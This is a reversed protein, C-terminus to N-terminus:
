ANYPVAYGEDVMRQNIDVMHGNDDVGILVVLWRGYKGKKMVKHDKFHRSDASVSKIRLLHGFRKDESDKNLAYQQIFQMLAEKSRKGAERTRLPRIEPSNIDLLRGTLFCAWTDYGLDAHYYITDGDYNDFVYGDRVFAEDLDSFLPTYIM